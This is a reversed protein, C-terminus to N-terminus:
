SIVITGNQNSVWNNGKSISGIISKAVVDKSITNDRFQVLITSGSHSINYNEGLLYEDVLLSSSFGDGEFVVINIREVVKELIQSARLNIITFSYETTKLYTSVTMLIINQHVSM